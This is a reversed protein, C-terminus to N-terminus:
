LAKVNVDSVVIVKAGVQIFCFYIRDGMGIIQGFILIKLVSNLSVKPNQSPTEPTVFVPLPSDSNVIM